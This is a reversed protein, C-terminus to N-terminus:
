EFVMELGTEKLYYNLTKDFERSQSVTFHTMWDGIVGKRVFAGVNTQKTADTGNNEGDMVARTHKTSSNKVTKQLVTDSTSLGTFVAVKRVNEITNKKIDEFKLFMVNDENRHNWFPLVHSTWQGYPAKGSMFMYIFTSWELEINKTKFTPKTFYYMSVATDKPNRAVYIVKAKKEFVQKPLLTFPLHTVVLRPSPLQEYYKYAYKLGGPYPLAFELPKVDKVGKEVLKEYDGDLKLLQIIQMLWHTGSKPYTCLWVDDDRVEFNNKVYELSERNIMIPMMIGEYEWTMSALPDM